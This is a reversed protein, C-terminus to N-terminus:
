GVESISTTWTVTPSEVRWSLRLGTMRKDKWSDLLQQSAAKYEYSVYLVPFNLKDEKYVVNVKRKGKM